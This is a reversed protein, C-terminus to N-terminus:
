NDGRANVEDALVIYRLGAKEVRKGVVKVMEGGKTVFRKRASHFDSDVPIYMNGDYLLALEGGEGICKAACAQHDEGHLGKNIYCAVDVVECKITSSESETKQDVHKENMNDQQAWALGALAVFTLIGMLISIKKM